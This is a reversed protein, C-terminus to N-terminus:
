LTLLNNQKNDCILRIGLWKDTFKRQKDWSKSMNLYASNPTETMGAVDFMSNTSSTTETGTNTGGLLNTNPSMYYSSTSNALAAM